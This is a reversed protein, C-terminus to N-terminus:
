DPYIPTLSVEKYTTFTNMEPQCTSSTPSINLDEEIYDEYGTKSINLTFSDLTYPPDVILVTSDDACTLDGNEYTFDSQTDSNDTVSATVDCAIPLGTDQDIITLTIMPAKTCPTMVAEILEHCGSIGLATFAVLLPKNLNM